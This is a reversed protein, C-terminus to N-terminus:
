LLKFGLAELESMNFPASDMVEQLKAFAEAMSSAGFSAAGDDSDHIQVAWAEHAADASMQLVSGHLYNGPLGPHPGAGPVLFLSHVLDHAIPLKEGGAHKARHHVPRGAVKARFGEAKPRRGAPLSAVYREFIAFNSELTEAPIKGATFVDLNAAKFSPVRALARATVHGDKHDADAYIKHAAYLRGLADQYSPTNPVAGLPSHEIMELVTDDFQSKPDQSM